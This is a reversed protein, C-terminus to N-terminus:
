LKIREIKTTLWRDHWSRGQEDWYAAVYNLLGLSLLSCGTVTWTHSLQLSEAFALTMVGPLWPVCAWLLRAIVQRWTPWAGTSTVIRLKWAQMGLTRGKRTWFFGFFAVIAMLLWARYVYAYWGVDEVVLAKKEGYVLPMFPLTAVMEIAFLLLTDYLMAGLRRLATASLSSTVQRAGVGGHYGCGVVVDTGV